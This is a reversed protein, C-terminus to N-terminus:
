VIFLPRDVSQHFTWMYTYGPFDIPITYTADMKIRDRDRYVKIDDEKVPLELEQAKHYLVKRIADSDGRGPFQATENMFDAFESAAIKVPIMKYAVMGAIALFLIWLVCGLKGQGVQRRRASDERAAAESGM